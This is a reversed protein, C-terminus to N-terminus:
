IFYSFTCETMKCEFDLIVNKILDEQNICKYLMILEKNNTKEINTLSHLKKYLNGIYYSDKNVIIKIFKCRNMIKFEIWHHYSADRKVRKVQISTKIICDFKKLKKDKLYNYLIVCYDTNQKEWDSYITELDFSKEESM